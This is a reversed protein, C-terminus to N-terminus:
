PAILADLAKRGRLLTYDVVVWHRSHDRVYRAMRDTGVYRMPADLHYRAPPLDWM